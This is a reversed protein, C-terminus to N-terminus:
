PAHRTPWLALHDLEIAGAASEFGLEIRLQDYHRGAAGPALPVALGAASTQWRERGATAIPQWRSDGTRRGQLAISRLGGPSDLGLVVRGFREVAFALEPPSLLTVRGQEPTLVLRGPRAATSGAVAKWGDDDAHVNAGFTWLRAGLPVNAHSLLFDRAAAELPTNRWATFPVYATDAAFLGNSGNWAMPSVFRAGYNFLDRLSRYAVAYGPQLKPARLDATNYEVVAWGPDLARFQAFLSLPGEMRVDNVAAAGYLIAGLHGSSPIAGVISMGGTDYNQAPSTLAIAFPRAEPHPAM